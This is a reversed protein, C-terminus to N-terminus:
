ISLVKELRSLSKESGLVDMIVFIDPTNQRNTIAVRIIGTVDAISGKYAEPNQKYEKMNVSYGLREAMEKSVEYFVGQTHESIKNSFPYTTFLISCM